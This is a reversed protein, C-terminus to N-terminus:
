KIKRFKEVCDLMSEFYIWIVDLNDKSIGNTIMRAFKEIKDEPLGAFIADRNEMFFDIKRDIIQNRHPLLNIVMHEMLDKSDMKKFFFEMLMIDGDDDVFVNTRLDVIFEEVTQKLIRIESM